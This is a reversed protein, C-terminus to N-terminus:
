PQPADLRARKAPSVEEAPQRPIKRGEADSGAARVSGPSSGTKVSAVEEVVPHLLPVDEDPAGLGAPDRLLDDAVGRVKPTTSGGSRPVAPSRPGQGSTPTAAQASGADSGTAKRPKPTRSTSVAPTISGKEADSQTLEPHELPVDRSIARYWGTGQQKDPGDPVGDAKAYAVLLLLKKKCQQIHKTKFYGQREWSLLVNALFQSGPVIGLTWRQFIITYLAPSLALELSRAKGRQRELLVIRDVICAAVVPMNAPYRGPMVKNVKKLTSRAVQEFIRV